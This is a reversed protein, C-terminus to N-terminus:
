SKVVKLRRAWDKVLRHGYDERDKFNATLAARYRETKEGIRVSEHFDPSRALSRAVCGECFHDYRGSTPNAVANACLRCTM